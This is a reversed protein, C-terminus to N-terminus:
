PGGNGHARHKSSRRRAIRLTGLVGVLLAALTQDPGPRRTRCGCGGGASMPSSGASTGGSGADSSAPGPLLKEASAMLHGFHPPALDELPNGHGDKTWQKADVLSRWSRRYIVRARVQVDGEDGALEFMYHTSDKGLAPIRNDWVISTADTFFTPANGAADANLKAYLKGPLGAYYGSEVESEGAANKGGLEHITQTSTPLLPDGSSNWAEVLLIINRITVGTPVHHGTRDNELTVDVTVSTPGREAVLDLRVANELYEPTTGPFTHSRVDTAPRQLSPFQTSCAQSAGTPKMHCDACTAFKPDGAKAYASAKWELYTPESVIGNDEEFDGDQDPDNKDQHCAACVDATLQPNYAARMLSPTLEFSVDGLVGYQVQTAGPKSLTVIGPWLGPFNPKTSDIAAIKHCTDCSVGHSVKTDDFPDLAQYPTQFWKEPQHCSACESAPNEAAYPSDRTYVYGGQGGPTGSGDYVDYLWTNRGADAMASSAWDSFQSDHCGSCAAPQVPQYNPDVVGPAPTLLIDAPATTSSVEHVGYYYGQKAAVLVAGPEQDPLVFGGAADTETEINSAQLSVRAGQIVENTIADRVSGSIDASAASAALLAGLLVRAVVGRMGQTDRARMGLRSISTMDNKRLGARDGIRALMVTTM